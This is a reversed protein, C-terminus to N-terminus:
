RRHPRQRPHHRSHNRQPEHNKGEKRGKTRNEHQKYQYLSETDLMAALYQSSACTKLKHLGEHNPATNTRKTALGALKSIGKPGQLKKATKARIREGRRKSPSMTGSHTPSCASESKVERTPHYDVIGPVGHRRTLHPYVQQGAPMDGLM